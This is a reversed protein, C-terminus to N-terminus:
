FKRQTVHEGEFDTRKIHVTREAMDWKFSYVGGVGASDSALKTVARTKNDILMISAAGDPGVTMGIRDRMPSGVGEPADLGLGVSGDAMTGFGGREVGTTDLLVITAARSRRQTNAPDEGITIRPRNQEDVVVLHRTRVEDSIQPKTFGVMTLAGAIFWGGYAILNRNPM